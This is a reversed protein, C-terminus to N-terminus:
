IIRPMKYATIDMTDHQESIKGWILTKGNELKPQPLLAITNAITGFVSRLTASNETAHGYIANMQINLLIHQGNSIKGEQAEKNLQSYEEQFAEPDVDGSFERYRDQNVGADVVENQQDM